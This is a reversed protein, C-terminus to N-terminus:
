VRASRQPPATHWPSVSIQAHGNEHQLRRAAQYRREERAVAPAGCAPCSVVRGNRAVHTGCIPIGCASCDFRVPNRCAHGARTLRSCDM